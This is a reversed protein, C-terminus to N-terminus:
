GHSVSSSRELTRVTIRESQLEQADEDTLACKGDFLAVGRLPRTARREHVRKQAKNKPLTTREPNLAAINREIALRVRRPVSKTPQSEIAM